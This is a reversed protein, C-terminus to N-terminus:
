TQFKPKKRSNYYEQIWTYQAIMFADDSDEYQLLLIVMDSLETVKAAAFDNYSAFNVPDIYNKEEKDIKHELISMHKRREKAIEM